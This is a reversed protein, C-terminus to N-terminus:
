DMVDEYKRNVVMSTFLQHFDSGLATSAERLMADDQSLIGRWLKAYSLRVDKPLETYIGHDLLVLQPSGDAAKRVYLNGPHPDAHIFGEKFIMHMFTQSIIQALRRTDIGQAHIERVKTLSLGEEFSMVLVRPTTLDHNVKPATM